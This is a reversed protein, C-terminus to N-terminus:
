VEELFGNNKLDDENDYKGQEVFSFSVNVIGNGINQVYSVSGCQTPRAIWINGNWDSICLSKGSSLLSLFDNTQKVVSERDITKSNEFEYGLLQGSISGSLYQSNGNSVLYPYKSGLPNFTGIEKNNTLGGYAVSNYLKFCNTGDSVFVGNLYTKVSTITMGSEEGTKLIPIFAYEYEKNNVILYDKINLNLDDESNVQKECVLIWDTNNSERKKVKIARIKSAMISTNGGGLNGNFTANLITDKTWELTSIDTEENTIYLTEAYCNDIEIYNLPFLNSLSYAGEEEIITEIQPFSSQENGWVGSFGGNYSYALNWSINSSTNWIFTATETREELNSLTLTADDNYYDFKLQLYNTGTAQAILNSQKVYVDNTNNYVIREEIFDLVLNLATKMRCYYFNLSYSSSGKFSLILKEYSSSTLPVPKFNFIFSFDNNIFFGQNFTITRGICDFAESDVYKEDLNCTGEIEIINSKIQNYGQKCNNVVEFDADLENNLIKVKFTYTTSSFSLGKTTVGTAQLTYTSNDELNEITCILTGNSLSYTTESSTEISKVVLNIKDVSDFSSINNVAFSVSYSSATIKNVYNSWILTVQTQCYFAVKESESSYINNLGITQFTFYYLNGNTLTNKPLVAEYVYTTTTITSCLTNTNDYIKLVNGVVRDGGNCSFQFTTDQTADFCSKSIGVPTSMSM